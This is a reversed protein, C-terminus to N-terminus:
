APSAASRALRAEVRALLDDGTLYGDRDAEEQAALVSELLEAKAQDRRKLLEVGARVVEAADRYHGAAVAADAFQELDPPLIIGDM